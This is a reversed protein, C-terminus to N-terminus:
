RWLEQLEAMTGPTVRSSSTTAPWAQRPQRYHQSSSIKNNHKTELLDLLNSIHTKPPVELTTDSPAVLPYCHIIQTKGIESLLGPRGCIEYTTMVLSSTRSAISLMGFVAAGPGSPTGGQRSLFALLLTALIRASM